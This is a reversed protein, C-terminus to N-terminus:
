MKAVVTWTEIEIGRVAPLFSQLLSGVKGVHLLDSECSVFEAMSFDNGYVMLGVGDDLRYQQVVRLDKGAFARIWGDFRSHLGRLDVNVIDIPAVVLLHLVPEAKSIPFSM